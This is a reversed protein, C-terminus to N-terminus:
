SGEVLSSSGGFMFSHILGHTCLCGRGKWGVGQLFGSEEHSNTALQQEETDRPPGTRVAQQTNCSEGTPNKNSSESQALGGLACIVQPNGQPWATPVPKWALFDQRCFYKGEQWWDRERFSSTSQGTCISATLVLLTPLKYEVGRQPFWSNRTPACTVSSGWMTGQAEM